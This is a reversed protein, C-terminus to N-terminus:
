KIFIYMSGGPLVFNAPVFETPQINESYTLPRSLKLVAIDYRNTYHNYKEHVVTYLVGYPKGLGRGNAGVYVQILEPPVKSGEGDLQISCTL